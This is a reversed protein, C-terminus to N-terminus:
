PLKNGAAKYLEYWEGRTLKVDTAKAACFFFAKLRGNPEKIL